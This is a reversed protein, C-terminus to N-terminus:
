RLYVDLTKGATYGQKSRAYRRMHRMYKTPVIVIPSVWPTAGEVEEIIDLSQIRQLEAEVDKRVTFPIRRHPQHKPPINPDIHLHVAKDKILGIGDFIDSFREVIKQYTCNQLVPRTSANISFKLVGLQQALPVALYIERRVDKLRINATITGILPLPQPSGYPYIKAQSIDKFFREM